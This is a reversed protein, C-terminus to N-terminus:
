VALNSSQQVTLALLKRLNVGFRARDGDPFKCRLGDPSGQIPAKRSETQKKNKKARGPVMRSSQTFMATSAPLTVGLSVRQTERSSDMNGSSCGLFWTKSARCLALNSTEPTRADRPPNGKLGGWGPDDALWSQLIHAQKPIRQSASSPCPLGDIEGLISSCFPHWPSSQLFACLCVCVCM